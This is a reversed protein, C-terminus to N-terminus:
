KCHRIKLPSLFLVSLSRRSALYIFTIGGVGWGGGEEIVGRLSASEAEGGWM